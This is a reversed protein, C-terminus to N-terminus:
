TRRGSRCLFGAIMSFDPTVRMGVLSRVAAGDSTISKVDCYGPHDPMVGGRLAPALFAAEWDAFRDLLVIIIEKNGM